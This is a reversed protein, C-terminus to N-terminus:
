LILNIVEGLTFSVANLIIALLLPRRLKEGYRAFLLAEAAVPHSLKACALVWIGYPRREAAIM